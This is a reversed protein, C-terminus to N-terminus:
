SLSSRTELLSYWKGRQLTELKGQFPSEIQTKITIEKPSHLAHYLLMHGKRKSKILSSKIHRGTYKYTHVTHHTFLAARPNRSILVMGRAGHKM